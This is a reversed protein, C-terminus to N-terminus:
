PSIGMLPWVVLCVVLTFFFMILTLILGSKMMEKETFFGQSFSLLNSPSQIPLFYGFSCGIIVIQSLWVPNINWLGAISITIPLFVATIALMNAFGLRVIITIFLMITAALFPSVSPFVSVIKYAFWDATQHHVIADAMAFGAGFLIVIDWDIKQSGEKWSQVGIIPICTVIAAFLAIMSVSYGHLSETCWGIVTLLGIICIKWENATMRGLVEFEKQIYVFGESITGTPLPFLVRFMLWLSFLSIIMLPFNFQLWSFYTWKYNVTSELFSIAYISSSSGTIVGWSMFSSTFAISLMLNKSFNLYLSTGKMVQIMGICIPIIMASRGSATPIMFGLLVLTFLVYLISLSSKGQAKLLLWLAIRKGVGTIEVGAALLFTSILLWVFSQSFGKLSDNFTGLGLIPIYVMILLSIIPQPLIKMGWGTLAFVLLMITKAHVIPIFLLLLLSSLNLVVFVLINLQMTAKLQKM